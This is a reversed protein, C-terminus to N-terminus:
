RTVRVGKQARRYAIYIAAAILALAIAALVPHAFIKSFLLRLTYM